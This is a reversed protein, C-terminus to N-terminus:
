VYSCCNIRNLLRLKQVFYQWDTDSTIFDPHRNVQHESV